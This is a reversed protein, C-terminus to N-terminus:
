SILFQAFEESWRESESPNHSPRRPAAGSTDKRSSRRRGFGSGGMGSGVGMGGYSHSVPFPKVEKLHSTGSQEPSEEKMEVAKDALAAYRAVVEDSSEEGPDTQAAIQRDHASPNLGIMMNQATRDGRDAAHMFTSLDQYYSPQSRALDRIFDNVLHENGLASSVAQQRLTSREERQETMKNRYSTLNDGLPAAQAETSPHINSEKTVISGAIDKASQNVATHSARRRPAVVTGSIANKGREGRGM